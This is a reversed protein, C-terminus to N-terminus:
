IRAAQPLRPAGTDRAPPWHLQAGCRESQHLAHQVVSGSRGFRCRLSSTATRRYQALRRAPATASAPMAVSDDDRDPEGEVQQHEHRARPCRSRRRGARDVVLVAAFAELMAPRDNAVEM